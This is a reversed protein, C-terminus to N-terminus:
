FSRALLQWCGYCGLLLYMAFSIAEFKQGSARKWWSWGALGLFLPGSLHFRFAVFVVVIVGVSRLVGLVQEKISLRRKPLPVILDPELFLQVQQKEDGFPSAIPARSVTEVIPEEGAPRERLFAAIREVMSQTLRTTHGFDYQRDARVGVFTLRTGGDFPEIFAQVVAKDSFLGDPSRGEVISKARDVRGRNLGCRAMARWVLELTAGELPAEIWLEDPSLRQVQVANVGAEM